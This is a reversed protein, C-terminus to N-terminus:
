GKYLRYGCSLSHSDREELFNKEENIDVIKYGTRVPTKYVESLEESENEYRSDTPTGRASTGTTTTNSQTTENHPNEENCRTTDQFNSYGHQCMHDVAAAIKERVRAKLFHRHSIRPLEVRSDRQAKFDHIGEPATTFRDRICM